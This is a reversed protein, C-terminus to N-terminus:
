NQQSQRPVNPPRKLNRVLVVPPASSEEETAQQLSGSLLVPHDVLSEAFNKLSADSSLDIPWVQGDSDITMSPTKADPRDVTRLTGLITMRIGTKDKTADRESLKKIDIIWRDKREIGRVKRLSGSVVVTEKHHSKAFNRQADNRLRVEWIIRNMAITTGTTEGGIATVGHRLRGCFEVEVSPRPLSDDADADAFAGALM